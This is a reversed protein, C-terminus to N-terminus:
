LMRRGPIGDDDQDRCGFTVPDCDEDLGQEDCVEAKGPFRRANDDDCDDGGCAVADSGDGDADPNRCNGPSGDLVSWPRRQHDGDNGDRFTRTLPPGERTADLLTVTPTFYRRTQRERFQNDGATGHVQLSATNGPAITEAPGVALPNRGDETIMAAQVRAAALGVNEVELVLVM